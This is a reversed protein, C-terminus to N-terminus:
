QPASIELRERHIRLPGCTLFSVDRYRRRHCTVDHRGCHRNRTRLRDLEHSHLFLHLPSSREVEQELRSKKVQASSVSTTVGPPAAAATKRASGPPSRSGARAAQGRTASVKLMPLTAPLTLAPWHGRSSSCISVCHVSM